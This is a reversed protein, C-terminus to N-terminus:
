KGEKKEDFEAGWEPDDAKLKISELKLAKDYVRMRDIVSYVYAGKKAVHKKEDGEGDWVDEKHKRSIEKVEEALARELEANLKGQKAKAAM